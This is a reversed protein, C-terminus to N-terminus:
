QWVVGTGLGDIALTKNQENVPYEWKFGAKLGM